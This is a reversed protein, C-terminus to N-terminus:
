KQIDSDVDIKPNLCSSYEAFNIMPNVGYARLLTPFQLQIMYDIGHKVGNKNIYDLLKSAGRKSIMYSATGIYSSRTPIIYKTMSEWKPLEDSEIRHSTQLEYCMLHGLFLIDWDFTIKQLLSYLKWAYNEVFEVDDEYIIYSDNSNDNVLTQWLKIHSMACGIVSPKSCFDNDRFLQQISIPFNGNTKLKNGDIASFREYSWDSVRPFRQGFKLLRDPRRDLNVVFAKPLTKAFSPDRVNFRTFGITYHHIPIELNNEVNLLYINDKNTKITAPKNSFEQILLTGPENNISESLGDFYEFKIRNETRRMVLEKLEEYRAGTYLIIPFIHNRNSNIATALELINIADDGLIKRDMDERIVQSIRHRMMFKTLILKKTALIAPLRETWWDQLLATKIIGFSTDADNMPLVVYPLLGDVPPFYAQINPCGWYFVLCESLIGDAIKETMYGPISHNEAILTYRYKMLVTKDREPLAGYYYKDPFGLTNDFGYIHLINETSGIKDNKQHVEELEHINSIMHRLLDIRYKHGPDVYKNSVVTSICCKFDSEKNVPSNSLLVSPKHQLWYEICNPFRTDYYDYYKMFKLPESKIETGLMIKEPFIPETRFFISKSLQEDSYSERSGWVIVYYDADGKDETLIFTIKNTECIHGIHGTNKGINEFLHSWDKYLTRTDTWMCSMHVKYVRSTANNMISKIKSHIKEYEVLQYHGVKKLHAGIFECMSLYYFSHAYNENNLTNHHTNHLMRYAWYLVDLYNGFLKKIQPLCRDYNFAGGRGSYMLTLQNIGTMALLVCEKYFKNTLLSKLSEESPLDNMMYNSVHICMINKICM